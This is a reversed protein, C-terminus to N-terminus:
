IIFNYITQLISPIKSKFSRYDQYTFARISQNKSFFCFFFVAVLILDKQHDFDMTESNM